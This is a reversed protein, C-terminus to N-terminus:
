KLEYLMGFFGEVIAGWSASFVILFLLSAFFFEISM